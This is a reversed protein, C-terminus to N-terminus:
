IAQTPYAHDKLTPKGRKRRFQDKNEEDPIYAEPAFHKSCVRIDKNKSDHGELGERNIKELWLKRLAPSKTLIHM